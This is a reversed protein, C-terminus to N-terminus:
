DLASIISSIDGSFEAKEALAVIRNPINTVGAKKLDAARNELMRFKEGEIKAPIKTRAEEFIPQAYESDWTRQDFTRKRLNKIFFDQFGAIQQGDAKQHTHFDEGYIHYSDSDDRFAAIKIPENRIAAIGDAVYKILNIFAFDNMFAAKYSDRSRFNMNTNLYLQGTEDAMIRFWFRQLCAPDGIGLDIWPQWTIAEVRRSIPAKALLEIAKDIQNIPKDIGPVKYSFLREHYTYEWRTDTPDSPDRIQWDRIGDCVEQRYEELGDLGSPFMRHILPEAFPNKILMSMSCDVSPPDIFNGQGDKQDYQTRIDCGAFYLALLSLEWAEPLNDGVVSIRPISGDLGRFGAPTIIRDGDVKVGPIFIKGEAMKPLILDSVDERQYTIEGM